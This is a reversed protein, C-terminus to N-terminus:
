GTYSPRTPEQPALLASADSSSMVLSTLSTPIGLVLEVTSEDSSGGTCTPNPISYGSSTLSLTKAAADFTATLSMAAISVTCGSLTYTPGTLGVDVTWSGSTMVILGASGDQPITGTVPATLPAFNLAFGESASTTGTQGLGPLSLTGSFAGTTPDYTGALAAGASAPFTTPTGNVTMVAGTIPVSVTTPAASSASGPLVFFSAAALGLVGLVRVPRMSMIKM